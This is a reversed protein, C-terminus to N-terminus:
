DKRVEDKINDYRKLLGRKYKKIQIAKYEEYDRNKYNNQNELITDYLKDFHKDFAIPSVNLYHILLSINKFIEIRLQIKVINEKKLNKFAEDSVKLMDSQFPFKWQGHAIKNRTEIAMKLDNTILKKLEIYRAKITFPMKSTMNKPISVITRKSKTGDKELVNIHKTYKLNCVKCLAIELAATWREEAKSITEIHRMDLNSFGQPEHILKYLRVELWATVLHSLIKNYCFEHEKEEKSIYLRLDRQILKIAHDLCRLNDCHHTYIKSPKPYTM